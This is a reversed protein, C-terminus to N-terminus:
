EKKKLTYLIKVQKGYSFTWSDGLFGRMKFFSKPKKKPLLAWAPYIAKCGKPESCM